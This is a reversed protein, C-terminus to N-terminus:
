RSISFSKCVPRHKKSLLCVDYYGPSFNSTNLPVEKDNNMIAQEAVVSGKKDIIRLILEDVTMKNTLIVNVKDAAPNPYVQFDIENKVIEPTTVYCNVSGDDAIPWYCGYPSTTDTFFNLASCGGNYIFKLHFLTDVLFSISGITMFSHFRIRGNTNWLIPFQLLPNLNEYGNYTLVSNDYDITICVSNVEVWNKGWVPVDIHAGSAIGTLVPLCVSMQAHTTTIIAMILVIIM